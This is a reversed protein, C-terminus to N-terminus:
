KSTAKGSASELSSVYGAMEGIANLLSTLDVASNKNEVLQKFAANLQKIASQASDLSSLTVRTRLYSERTANWNAPVQQQLYPNIVDTTEQVELTDALSAKLQTGIAVVAAEQLALAREIIPKAKGLQEDLAKIEFHAVVFSTGTKVFDQVTKGGLSASGIKPNLEDISNLLDTAAATSASAAKGNTLNAIADFYAGLRTAHEDILQLTALYSELLADQRRVDGAYKGPNASLEPIVIRHAAVLTASDVAIMASGAQKVLGHFAVVYQSGATAFKSFQDLRQADCSTLIVFCLVIAILRVKASKVDFAGIKM